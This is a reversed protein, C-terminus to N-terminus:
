APRDLRRGPVRGRRRHGGRRRDGRALARAMCPPAGKVDGKGHAANADAKNASGVNNTSSDDDANSGASADAQAGRDGHRDGRGDDANGDDANGDNGADDSGVSADGANSDDDSNSDDVGSGAGRATGHGYDGEYRMISRFSWVHASQTRSM